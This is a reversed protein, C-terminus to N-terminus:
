GAQSLIREIGKLLEAPFTVGDLALTKTTGVVALVRAREDSSLGASLILLDFREILLLIEAEPVTTTRADHGAQGLVACRITLLNPENGVCLIKRREAM